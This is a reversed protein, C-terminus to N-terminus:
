TLRCKHRSLHKASAFATGVAPKGERRSAEGVSRKALVLAFPVLFGLMRVKSQQAQQIDATM